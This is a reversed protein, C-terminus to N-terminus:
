PWFDVLFGTWFILIPSNPWRSKGQSPSVTPKQVSAGAPGDGGHKADDLYDRLRQAIQPHMALAGAGRKGGKRVVRLSDYGRNIYLDGVKLGAIEARRFGVQFGVSLIARDHLGQVIEPGPADLIVRAPEQSFAATMGARRNIAPREVDRVPNADVAGFKVLHMFLSSLAALRRRVTSPEQSECAM